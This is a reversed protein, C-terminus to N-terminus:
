KHDKNLILHNIIKFNIEDYWKINGSSVNLLFWRTFSGIALNGPCHINLIDNHIWFLSFSQIGLCGRYIQNENLCGCVEISEQTTSQGCTSSGSFTKGEDRSLAMTYKSSTPKKIWAVSNIATVSWRTLSFTKMIATYIMSYGSETLIDKIYFLIRLPLLFPLM